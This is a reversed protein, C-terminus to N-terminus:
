TFSPQLLLMLCLQISVPPMTRPLKWFRSYFFQRGKRKRGMKHLILNESPQQIVKLNQEVGIMKMIATHLETLFAPIARKQGVEFVPGFSDAVAMYTGCDTVPSALEVSAAGFLECLDCRTSFTLMQSFNGFNLLRCDLPFVVTYIFLIRIIVSSIMFCPFQNVIIVSFVFYFVLSIQKFFTCNPETTNYWEYMICLCKSWREVTEM